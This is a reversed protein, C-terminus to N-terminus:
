DELRKGKVKQGGQFLTLSEVKGKDNKNFTLEAQVVKYYFVNESKPFVPLNSQGTAQAMLQDEKLTITIVFGPVLEYKGIYTELVAKDVKVEKVLGETDVGLKELMAIGNQNAPNLEVSKKYDAKAKENDGKKMYAEGRSDYVNFADPYTKVNIDFVALATEIAGEGMYKYGLTNLESESFDYADAENNKLDWYAKVGAEIGEKDMTSQLKDAISPKVVNLEYNPDLLHRGIDDVTASSNTLVVVGKNGGKIFGAFAQYGGTAGGHAIIEKGNKMKSIHWALGVVAGQKKDTTAKHTLEMAPYADIKEKGMNAAVYKLMDTATSRIGGAGALIGLDWNEAQRSGSHGLALNKKMNDTLVVRTNSMGLPTVIRELMLEEYGMNSNTALVHGLLAMAYNSYEYESGIDRPLECNSLFDFMRKETYDVYPNAPNAPEFNDPMRPLASTHNAMHLLTIQEGDKTPVSVDKPLYKKVPDQLKMKGKLVKDALIIGTFTKSISGIEFVSNEDVPEKTKLSKVGYSYYHSGSEDIIGVVIGANVGKEIRNKIEQEVEPDLTQATSCSLFAGFLFLTSAFKKFM